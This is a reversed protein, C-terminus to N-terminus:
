ELLQTFSVEIEDVMRELSFEEEVTRRGAKALESILGRDNQVLLIKEALM